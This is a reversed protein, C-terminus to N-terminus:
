ADVREVGPSMVMVLQVMQEHGDRAQAETAYRDMELDMRRDDSANNFVMTEFIIPVYEREPHMFSFGHDLGMWVTSIWIDGITTSGIRYYDDRERLSAWERQSIAVGLRDYYLGNIEDSLQPPDEKM